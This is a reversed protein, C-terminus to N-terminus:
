KNPLQPLSSIDLSSLVQLQRVAMQRLAQLREGQPHKQEILLANYSEMNALVLLQQLSAYDRVNGKRGPNQARWQAATMGFLAVNLMDADNPM